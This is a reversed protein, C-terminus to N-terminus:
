KTKEKQWYRDSGGKRLELGPVMPCPRVIGTPSYGARKIVSKALGWWAPVKPEIGHELRFDSFWFGHKPMRKLTEVLGLGWVTKEVDEPTMVRPKPIRAPKLFLDLQEIKM